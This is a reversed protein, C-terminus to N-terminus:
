PSEIEERIKEVAAARSTANFPQRSAFPLAVGDFRAHVGCFERCTNGPDRLTMHRGDRAITLRCTGERDRYHFRDRSVTAVGSLNCVHMNGSFLEARFWVETASKRAILLEDTANQRAGGMEQLTHTRTYRGEVQEFFAENAGSSTNAVGLAFALVSPLVLKCVM